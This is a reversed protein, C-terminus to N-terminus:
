ASSPFATQRMNQPKPGAAARGGCIIVPTLLKKIEPINGAPLAVGCNKLTKRVLTEAGTAASTENKTMNVINKYQKNTM